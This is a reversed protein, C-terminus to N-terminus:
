KKNNVMLRPILMLLFMDQVVYLNLLGHNVTTGTVSKYFASVVYTTGLVTSGTTVDRYAVYLAADTVQQMNSTYGREDVVQVLLM